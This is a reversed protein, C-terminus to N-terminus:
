ITTKRKFLNFKRIKHSWKPYYNADLNLSYV